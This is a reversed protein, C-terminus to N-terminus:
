EPSKTWSIQGFVQRRKAAAVVETKKITRGAESICM